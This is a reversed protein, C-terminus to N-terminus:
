LHLDLVDQLLQPSIVRLGRSDRTGNITRFCSYPGGRAVWKDFGRLAWGQVMANQVVRIWDTRRRKEPDGEHWARVVHTAFYIEELTFRWKAGMHFLRTIEAPSLTEPMYSRSKRSSEKPAPAGSSQLISVVKGM